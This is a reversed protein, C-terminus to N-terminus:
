VNKNCCEHSIESSVRQRKKALSIELYFLLVILGVLPVIIQLISMLYHTEKKNREETHLKQPQNSTVNINSSDAVRRGDFMKECIKGNGTFGNKCVCILSGNSKKCEANGSCSQGETKCKQNGEIIKLVYTENFENQTSELERALIVHSTYRGQDHFAVNKIVLAGDVIQIRNERRRRNLTEVGNLRKGKDIRTRVQPPNATELQEFYWDSVVHNRQAELWPVARSPFIVTAGLHAYVVTDIMKCCSFDFELLLLILWLKNFYFIGM